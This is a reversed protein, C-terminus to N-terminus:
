VGLRTAEADNSGPNANPISTTNKSMVPYRSLIANAGHFHLALDRPNALAAISDDEPRGKGIALTELRSNPYAASHGVDVHIM